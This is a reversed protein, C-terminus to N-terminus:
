DYDRLERRLIKGVTSKPLAAVFAIQKPVKYATLHERAYATIDETSLSKGAEIVVFLRLAEGTKDDPVGICACEAVGDIHAITAEVENPFVNFGSVLVMDKKRDVIKVYGDGTFVGIDGTRFYGDATFADNNAEPNQWYGSMVQPGTACIEGEEGLAVDEDKDNLLRIDTSPVPLGAAGSFSMTDLPNLALVPSTESLGYGQCIPRGTIEQWKNSTAELVPAGGGISIRLASHDITAFRPHMVLGAFLTNVGTLMTPRATEFLDLLHDVDRPDTVLHNTGGQDIYTILNAMLAFIHYLPLVTLVVEKGPSIADGAFARYQLTNAVLNGHSLVAGKSLGTTGGTYQLFLMDEGTLAVPDRTLDAGASLAESLRHIDTPMTAPAPSPLAPGGADSLEATIVHEVPTDAIVKALTPTSGTFIVITKVGADNLQHRLEDPTYMPNVNVQVGGALVIGAMAVPFAMMNPMMVAIRDGKKVGMEHQLYAALDEALKGFQAFSLSAGRNVFATHDGYRAVADTILDAVSRNPDQTIEHPTGESYSKLWFKSM